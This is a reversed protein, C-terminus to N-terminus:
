QRRRSRRRRRSWLACLQHSFFGGVRLRIMDADGKTCFSESDNVMVDGVGEKGV